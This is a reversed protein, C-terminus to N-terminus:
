AVGRNLPKDGGLGSREAAERQRAERLKRIREGMAIEALRKSEEQQPKVRRHYDRRSKVKNGCAKMSCWKRPSGPTRDVFLLDCGDGACRGVKLHYKTLLLKEMSTAVPWLMRDLDDGRHDSWVLRCGLGSRVLRQAASALALEVNLVDLDSNNPGQRQILGDFIRACRDRLERARRAVEAADSPREAAVRELREVDAGTLTGHDLSWRLLERYTSFSARQSSRSNVFTVCLGGDRRVLEPEQKNRRKTM